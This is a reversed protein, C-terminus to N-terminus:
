EFNGQNSGNLWFTESKIIRLLTISPPVKAEPYEPTYRLVTHKCKRWLLM